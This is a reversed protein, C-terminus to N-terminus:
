SVFATYDNQFNFMWLDAMPNKLKKSIDEIDAGSGAPTSQSPQGNACVVTSAGFIFMFSIIWFSIIKKSM